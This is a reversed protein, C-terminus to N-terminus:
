AVHTQLRLDMARVLVDTGRLVRGVNAAFMGGIARGRVFEIAELYITNSGLKIVWRFATAREGVDPARIEGASVLKANPGFAKRLQEGECKATGNRTDVGYDGLAQAHSTFVQVSSMLQAGAQRFESIARGTMTYASYDQWPCDPSGGADRSVPGGQWGSALDTLRVLGKQALRGDSARLAVKELRPDRAAATAALALSCLLVVVVSALKV